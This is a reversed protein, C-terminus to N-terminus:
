LNMMYCIHCVLFSLLTCNDDIDIIYELRDFISQIKSDCSIEDGVVHRFTKSLKDDKHSIRDLYSRKACDCKLIEDFHFDLGQILFVAQDPNLWCDILM